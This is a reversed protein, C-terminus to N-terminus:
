KTSIIITSKRETRLVDGGFFPPPVGSSVGMTAERLSSIGMQENQPVSYWLQNFDAIGVDNSGSDEKSTFLFVVEM